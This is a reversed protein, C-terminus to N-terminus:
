FLYFTIPNGGLLNVTKEIRLFISEFQGWARVTEILIRFHKYFRRWKLVSGRKFYYSTSRPPYPIKESVYQTKINWNLSRFPSEASFFFFHGKHGRLRM